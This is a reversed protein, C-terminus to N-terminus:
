NDLLKLMCYISPRQFSAWQWVPCGLVRCDSPMCTSTSPNHQWIERHLAPNCARLLCDSVPMHAHAAGSLGAEALSYSAQQTVMIQIAAMAIMGPMQTSLRFVQAYAAHLGPCPAFARFASGSMKAYVTFGIWAIHGRLHQRECRARKSCFVLWLSDLCPPWLM